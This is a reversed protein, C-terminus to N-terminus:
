YGLLPQDFSWLADNIDFINYNGNIIFYEVIIDARSSHTLAYGAKKLLQETEELSLELAIAFALATSKKPKYNKDNRIKSFHKRSINAKKYCQAETMGKQAILKLLTQSFGEDLRDIYDELSLMKNKAAPASMVMDECRDIDMDMSVHTSVIMKRGRIIEKRDSHKAVYNDDIYSEIDDYLSRSITYAAKDFLVMYVDIDYENNELWHSITKTAVDFAKDKPYGYVGSSILPFAISECSHEKALDLSSIYCNELRQKEGRSGGQWVPGVTHIVYKAKLNYGKTIKASGTACGGLIKCEELLQPGAAKHIRGDVGSGGLLSNKAANVIADTEMLTIDNRVIYLPM